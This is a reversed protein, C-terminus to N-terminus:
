NKLLVLLNNYLDAIMLQYKSLMEKKIETKEPALPYDNHLKRLEKPYKLNIELVWLKSSNNTDKEVDFEQLDIWKFGSTPLLKFVSYCYLNNADLYIIPKLEQKPDYSKLYRNNAKSYRNSIYFVGGRM